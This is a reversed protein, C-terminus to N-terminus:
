RRSDTQKYYKFFLEESNNQTKIEDIIEKPLYEDAYRFNIGKYPKHTQCAISINSGVLEKGTIEKIQELQKNASNFYYLVNNDADIIVVPHTRKTAGIKQSNKTVYNCWGLETGKKLYRRVSSASLCFSKRLNAMDHNGNNYFTSIEKVINKQAFEDCLKWDIHSLDFLQNLTSSLINNRIYDCINYIM